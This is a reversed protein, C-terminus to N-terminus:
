RARKTNLLDADTMPARPALTKPRKLAALGRLDLKRLWELPENRDKPREVSVEVLLRDGLLVKAESKGGGARGPTPLHSTRQVFFGDVEFGEHSLKAATNERTEGPKSVRFVVKAESADVWRMNFNVFRREPLLYAAHANSGLDHLPPQKKGDGLTPPLFEELAKRKAPAAVAAGAALLGAAALWGITRMVRM